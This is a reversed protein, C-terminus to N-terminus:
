ERPEPNMPMDDVSPAGVALIAGASEGVNEIGRGVEPSVAYVSGPGLRHTETEEPYGVTLEFEGELVYVLEEQEQHAHFVTDEGPEFYWVNARLEELGLAETLMRYRAPFQDIAAMSQEELEEVQAVEYSM